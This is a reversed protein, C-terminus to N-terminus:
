GAVKLKKKLLRANKPTKNKYVKDIVPGTIKVIIQRIQKVNDEESKKTEQQKLEKERTSEMKSSNLTFIMNIIAKVFFSVIVAAILYLALLKYDM